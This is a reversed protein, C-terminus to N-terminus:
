AGLWCVRQLILCGSHSVIFFSFLRICSLKHYHKPFNPFLLLYLFVSPSLSCYFELALSFFDAKVAGQLWNDFKDM